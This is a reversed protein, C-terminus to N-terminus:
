SIGASRRATFPLASGALSFHRDVFEDVRSRRSEFYRHAAEAVIRQADAATLGNRTEPHRAYRDMM